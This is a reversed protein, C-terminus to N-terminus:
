AQAKPIPATATDEDTFIAFDPHNQLLTVPYEVSEEGLLAIRLVTRQWAGGQCYLRIRRANVIDKMGLTVAM